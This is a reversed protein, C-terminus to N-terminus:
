AEFFMENPTRYGHRKRPRNNLREAIANCKAQTLGKMSKGKPLYQRILGNTNENSGREWSHYPKAFYFEVDCKEEIKKYGHFETGNDSTITKFSEPHKMVFERIRKNTVEVTKNKLQGIMVYGTKRDVITAIAEKGKGHVTDIEWHGIESRENAEKPREEIQRKGALVGRSDYKGYRKRRKKRSHRLHKYLKGGTKRDRLVYQYITEHSITMLEEKKLWGAIQEPSYDRCLLERVLKWEEDSYQTGTRARSRRGKYMSCAHFARYRGDTPYANRKVERSITSASRGLEDAIKRISKGASRLAAIRHREDDNLHMYKMNTM